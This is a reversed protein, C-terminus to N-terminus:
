AIKEKTEKAILDHHLSLTEEKLQKFKEQWQPSLQHSNQSIYAFAEVTQTAEITSIEQEAFDKKEEPTKELYARLDAMEKDIDVEETAIKLEPTEIKDLSTVGKSDTIDPTITKVTEAWNMTIYM